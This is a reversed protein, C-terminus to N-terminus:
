SKGQNQINSYNKTFKIFRSCDSFIHQNKKWILGIKVRIPDTLPIGVIDEHLDAVERFLFSSAIGSAIFNHITYLQNAFLIVKPVGGVEKFRERIASNQFSGERMLILPEDKIMEINVEKESALRHNKSVTYILETDLINICNFHVAKLHSTIVIALDLRNDEVFDMIELSGMEMMEINIDPNAKKFQSFMKPFLITGIMPPIGIRINNKKNGLDKMQQVLDDSKQLIVKSYNLFYEGEKTLTLHNGIRHFLNLGFEQELDKIANSISPQTIHLEEAAKTINGYKCVTQFYLIQSLKM